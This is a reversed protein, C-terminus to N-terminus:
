NPRVRRPVQGVIMERFVREVPYVFEVNVTEAEIRSVGDRVIRGLMQNLFDGLSNLCKACKHDTLIWSVLPLQNKRAVLASVPAVRDPGIVEM